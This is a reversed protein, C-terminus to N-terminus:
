TPCPRPSSVSHSRESSTDRASGRISAVAGPFTRRLFDIPEHRGSTLTSASARRWTTTLRVVLAQSDKPSVAAFRKGVLDQLSQIDNRDARCFIVGGFVPLPGEGKVSPQQFTAIRYVLGHYELAVYMSPNVLLFEVSRQEAADQVEDFDLPVVEFHFSSLQANLYNVTPTWELRCIEKGRNALIGVRVNHHQIANAGGPNPDVPQTFSGNEEDYQIISAGGEPQVVRPIGKSQDFLVEQIGADATQGFCGTAFWGGFILPLLVAIASWQRCMNTRDGRSDACRRSLRAGTITLLVCMMRMLPAPLKICTPIHEVFTRYM